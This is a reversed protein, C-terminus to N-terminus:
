TLPGAGGSHHAEPQFIAWFFDKDRALIERLERYLQGPRDERPPWGWAELGLAEALYLARSLHYDQTVIVLSTM